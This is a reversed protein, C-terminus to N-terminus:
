QSTPSTSAGFCPAYATTPRRKPAATSSPPDLRAPPPAPSACSRPPPSFGPTADTGPATTTAVSVDEETAPVATTTSPQTVDGYDAIEPVVTTETLQIGPEEEFVPIGGPVLASFDPLSHDGAEEAKAMCADWDGNTTTGDDACCTGVSACMDPLQQVVGAFAAVGDCGAVIDACSCEDRISAGGGSLDLCTLLTCVGDNPDGGGTPCCTAFDGGTALCAVSDQLDCQGVAAVPASDSASSGAAIAIALALSLARSLRM